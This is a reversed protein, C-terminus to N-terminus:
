TPTFEGGNIDLVAGNVFGAEPASLFVVARAIDEPLGLRRAPIRSLASQNAPSSSQGTMETLIRGPCITNATIGYESYESVISRALGTLAAKSAVYSAGAIRPATRGAISGILIIRGHRREVMGPLVAQCCLMAGTLNVSLVDNWEALPIEGLPTRGVPGKPSFGANCVLADIRKFRASVATFFGTIAAPERLDLTDAFLGDDGFRGALTERASEVHTRQQSFLAVAWGETLLAEAAALGIGSSGGSVVAVPRAHDM